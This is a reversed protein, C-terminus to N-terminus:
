LSHLVAISPVRLAYQQLRPLDRTHLGGETLTSIVSRSNRTGVEVALERASLGLGSIMLLSGLALALWISRPNERKTM